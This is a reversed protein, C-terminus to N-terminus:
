IVGKSRYWEVVRMLGVRWGVPLEFGIEDALRRTGFGTQNNLSVLRAFASSNSVMPLRKAGRLAVRVLCALFNPLQLAPKEVGLEAAMVDVFEGLTCSDSLHYIGGVANPHETLALIAHAVDEVFVYNCIVDRGGLYAFRGRHVAQILTLLGQEPHRDGFVNAPRLITVALGDRGADVILKESEWKSQEYLNQPNCPVNEDFVFNRLQDAGIVGVTSVHVFRDVGGDVAAALLNSTGQVNVPWFSAPKRKAGALHIVVNVGDMADRCASVDTLDGVFRDIPSPFVVKAKRTLARIRCGREMLLGQVRSGIFGSAGTLLILSKSSSM